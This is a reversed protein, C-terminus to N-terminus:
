IDKIRGGVPHASLNNQRHEQHIATSDGVPHHHLDKRVNGMQAVDVHYQWFNFKTTYIGYYYILTNCFIRMQSVVVDQTM